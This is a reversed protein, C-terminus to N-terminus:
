ALEYYKGTEPDFYCNLCPDYLLNLYEDEMEEENESEERGKILDQHRRGAENSRRQLCPPMIPPSLVDMWERPNSCQVPNMEKQYHHGQNTPLTVHTWTSNDESSLSMSVNCQQILSASLGSARSEDEEQQRKLSALMQLEDDDGEHLQLRSTPKLHWDGCDGPQITEDEEKFPDELSVEQLCSLSLTNNRDVAQNVEKPGGSGCRLDQRLVGSSHCQKSDNWEDEAPVCPRSDLHMDTVASCLEEASAQDSNQSEPQSDLNTFPLPESIDPISGTMSTPHFLSISSKEEDSGIFDDQPQAECRRESPSQVGDSGTEMKQESQGQGRKPSNPPTSFTFVEKQLALQLEPEEDNSEWYSRVQPDPSSALRTPSLPSEAPTPPPSITSSKPSNLGRMDSPEWCLHAEGEDVVERTGEQTLPKHRSELRSSPPSCKERTENRRCPDVHAPGLPTELREPGVSLFRLKRKEPTQKNGVKSRSPHSQMSSSTGDSDGVDTTSQQHMLNFGTKRGYPEGKELGNTASGGKRGSHTAAATARCGPAVHSAAQPKTRQSSASRAASQQDIGESSLGSPEAKVTFIRRVSCSAFLTIGDLSLFGAAKFLERTFSGLDVFLTTWINRKVGSLPIKAHWLTASLDKHVTSLYLRRKLHGVDTVVLEMSFDKDPPIKVQIALFRQLLGLTMKGNGPMQMKVSKCSGDLCYVFGKVEKDYEKQISSQGGFLKWRAVPDKGQGSFVEVVAGGQYNHKFM